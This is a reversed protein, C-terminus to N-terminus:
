KLGPKKNEKLMAAAELICRDITEQRKAPIIWKVYNRKHPPALHNFNTLAPERRALEDLIFAPITMEGTTEKSIKKGSENNEWSVKGTNCWSEIKQLGATTMEGSRIVEDVFKKNVESWKSTNKRPTFKVLYRNYDLRKVNSNIRGFCLTTRLADPHNICPINM